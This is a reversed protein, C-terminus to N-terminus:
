KCGLYELLKFLLEKSSLYADIYNQTKISTLAEKFNENAKEILQVMIDPPVTLSLIRKINDIHNNILEDKTKTSSTRQKKQM